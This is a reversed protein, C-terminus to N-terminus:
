LLAQSTLSSKIESRLSSVVTSPNISSTPSLAKQIALTVDALPTQPRIGYTSLQAEILAHFPYAADFSPTRTSRRASPPLGGEPQM